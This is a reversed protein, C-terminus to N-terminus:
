FRCCTATENESRAGDLWSTRGTALMGGFSGLHCSSDKCNGGRCSASLRRSVGVLLLTKTTLELPPRDVRRCGIVLGTLGNCGDSTVDFSACVVALMGADGFM